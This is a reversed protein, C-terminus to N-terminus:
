YAVGLILPFSPHSGKGSGPLWAASAIKVLHPRAPKRTPKVVDAVKQRSPLPLEAATAPLVFGCALTSAVLGVRLRRSNTM